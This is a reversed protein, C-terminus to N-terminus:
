EIGLASKALEDARDNGMDGSHGKVKHFHVKLKDSISVYYEKYARTGEKNTKWEGLAWKEIGAYDYYITIEKLGEELELKYDTINYAATEKRLERMREYAQIKSNFTNTENAEANKQSPIMRIMVQIVAKVSDESLSDILKYAEQQITM